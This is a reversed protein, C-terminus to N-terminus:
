DLRKREDNVEILVEGLFEEQYLRVTGQADLHLLELFCAVQQRPDPRNLLQRFPIVREGNVMSLLKRLLRGARHTFPERDLDFGLDDPELLREREKRGNRRGRALAALWSRELDGLTPRRRGHRILPLRLEPAIYVDEDIPVEEAVQEVVEDLTPARAAGDRVWESKFRLLVAGALVMRGPVDLGSVALEDLHARFRAVLEVINVAWPDMDRALERFLADWNARILAQPELLELGHM